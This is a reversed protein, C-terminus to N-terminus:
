IYLSDGGSEKGHFTTIMSTPSWFFGFKLRLCSPYALKLFFLFDEPLRLAKTALDPLSMYCNRKPFPPEYDSLFFSLIRKWVETTM